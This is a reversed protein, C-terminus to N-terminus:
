EQGDVLFLFPIERKLCIVISPLSDTFVWKVQNWLEKFQNMGDLIKTADM